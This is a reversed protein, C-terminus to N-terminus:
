FEKWDADSKVATALATQMRGVPGGGGAAARKPAVEVAEEAPKPKAARVARAAPAARETKAPKAHEYKAQEAKASAPKAAENAAGEGIHFFAVQEDMAQAQHELTKATAANEEVLASNFQLM